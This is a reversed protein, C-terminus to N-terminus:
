QPTNYKALLIVLHEKIWPQLDELTVENIKVWKYQSHEKSIEVNGDVYDVLYFLTVAPEGKRDFVTNSVLSVNAVKLNTEEAIERLIADDPVENTDVLGGPLDWKEPNTPALKGRQLLLLEDNKLILAKVGVLFKNM